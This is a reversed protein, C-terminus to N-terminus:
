LRAEQNPTARWFLAKFSRPEPSRHEPLTLETSFKEYSRRTM